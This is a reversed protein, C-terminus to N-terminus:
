STRDATPDAHSVSRHVYTVTLAGKPRLAVAGLTGLALVRGVGPEGVAWSQAVPLFGRQALYTAEEAFLTAADTQTRGPYLRVIVPRRHPDLVGVAPAPPEAEVWEVIRIRSVQRVGGGSVPAITVGTEDVDVVRGTVVADDTPAGSFPNPEGRIRLDGYDGIELDDM